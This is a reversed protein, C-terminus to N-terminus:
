FNKPNLDSLVNHGKVKRMAVYLCLCQVSYVLTYGNRDNHILKLIPKVQKKNKRTNKFILSLYLALLVSILTLDRNTSLVCIM